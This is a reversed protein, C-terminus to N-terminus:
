SLNIKKSKKGLIKKESIIKQAIQRLDANSYNEPKKYLKLSDNDKIFAILCERENICM